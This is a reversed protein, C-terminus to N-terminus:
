MTRCMLECKPYFDKSLYQKGDVTILLKTTGTREGIAEFELM